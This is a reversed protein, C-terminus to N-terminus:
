ESPRTLATLKLRAAVDDIYNSFFRGKSLDAPEIRSANGVGGFAESIVVAHDLSQRLSILAM